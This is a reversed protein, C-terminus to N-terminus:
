FATVREKPFIDEKHKGCKGCSIIDKRLTTWKHDCNSVNYLDLLEETMLKRKHKNVNWDELLQMIKKEMAELKINTM